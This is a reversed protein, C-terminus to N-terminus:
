STPTFMGVASDFTFSLSTVSGGFTAIAAKDTIKTIVTQSQLNAELWIYVTTFPTFVVDFQSLVEVANLPNGAHTQGNVTADQTLGMTLSPYAAFPMTNEVLYSGKPPEPTGASAPDFTASASFEYAVGDQAPNISSVKDITAGHVLKVTSAYLGFLETWKITNTGLPDFSLWAVNPNGNGVPKALIVNYQGSRIRKLDDNNINLTLSYDPM